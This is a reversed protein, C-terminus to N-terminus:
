PYALIDKWDNVRSAHSRVDRRTVWFGADKQGLKVLDLLQGLDYFRFPSRHRSKSLEIRTMMAILASLASCQSLVTLRYERSLEAVHQLIIPAVLAWMTDINKSPVIVKFVEVNETTAITIGSLSPPVIFLIADSREVIRKMFIGFKSEWFLDKPAAGDAVLWQRKGDHLTSFFGVLGAATGITVAPYIDNMIKADRGKGKLDNAFSANGGTLSIGFSFDKSCLRLQDSWNSVSRATEELCLALYEYFGSDICNQDISGINRFYTGGANVMGISTVEEWCRHNIKAFIYDQDTITDLLPIEKVEFTSHLRELLRKGPLQVLAKSKRGADILRHNFSINCTLTKSFFRYFFNRSHDMWSLNRTFHAVPLESPTVASIDLSYSNKSCQDFRSSDIPGIKLPLTAAIRKTGATWLRTVEPRSASIQNPVSPPMNM